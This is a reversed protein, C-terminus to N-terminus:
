INEKLSLMPVGGWEYIRRLTRVKHIKITTYMLFKSLYYFIQRIIGKLFFISPPYGGYYIYEKPSPISVGGWKYIRGSYYLISPPIRETLIYIPSTVGGIYIGKSLTYTGRGM